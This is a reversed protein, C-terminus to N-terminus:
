SEAARVVPSDPVTTTTGVVVVTELAGTGQLVAATVAPLNTVGIRVTLRRLASAAIGEAYATDAGSVVVIEYPDAFFQRHYDAVSAAVEYPNHGDLRIVSSAYAGLATRVSTPVSAGGGAIRIETPALATLAHATAAPVSTTDTFLIPMYLAAGVGAAALGDAPVRGSAVFVGTVPHRAKIAAAVNAAVEFRSSGSIRKVTLGRSRLQGAVADSISATGGVIHVTRLVGARRDLERLTASPLTNVGSFLLPGKVTGALPGAVIGDYVASSYASVLVAETASASVRSSVQEAIQYRDTGAVRVTAHRVWTGSLGLRSRLQEGTVTATLGGSSTGEALRVGHGATRDSLDLSVIDPLGFAAALESQGVDRSWWRRPNASTRSYPDSRARLYPQPTGGWVDENNQTYGGNSSSYYAVIPTGAYRIVYGKTASAAARVATRWLPWYPLDGSAPYGGFVQSASTDRVHCACSTLLGSQVARMAYTRAAAAQAQLAPSPWSWPSERIYDLYEDHLRADLVAHLSTATAPVVRLRGGAYWGAADGLTEAPGAVDLRTRAVTTDNLGVWTVVASAGSLSSGGTCGSCKLQVGTATRTFTAVSSQTATLRGAGVTITFPGSGSGVATSAVRVSTVAELLNVTIQDTDTVADYTTGQYYFSLIDRVTRGQRAMEYAGYQSMGVGHGFGSGQVTWTAPPSVAGGIPAAAGAAASSPTPQAVVVGLVALVGLVATLVGGRRFPVM